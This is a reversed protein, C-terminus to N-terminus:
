GGFLGVRARELAEGLRTLGDAAIPLRVITARGARVYREGRGAVTRFGVGFGELGRYEADTENGSPPTAIVEELMRIAQLLPEVEHLELYYTREPEPLETRNLVIRVGLLRQEEHGPEFASMPQIELQGGGTLPLPPLPARRVVVLKGQEEEVLMRLRNSLAGPPAPVPTLAMTQGLPTLVLIQPVQPRASGSSQAHASAALALLLALTTRTM